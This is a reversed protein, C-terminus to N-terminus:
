SVSVAQSRSRRWFTSVEIHKDMELRKLENLYKIKLEMKDNDENGGSLRRAVDRPLGHLDGTINEHNNCRM